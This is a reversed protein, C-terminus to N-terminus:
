FEGKSKMLITLLTMKELSIKLVYKIFEVIGLFIRGLYLNLCSKYKNAAKKIQLYGQVKFGIVGLLYFNKLRKAWTGVFRPLFLLIIVM